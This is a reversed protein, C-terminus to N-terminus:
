HKGKKGKGPGHHKPRPKPEPKPEPPSGWKSIRITTGVTVTGTPTLAAVTGAPHGGPNDVTVLRAHLGLALLAARVTDAPKGVYAARDVAVTQKPSVSPSTPGSGPTSTDKTGDGDPSLAAVVVIVVFLAALVGALVVPWLERRVRLGRLRQAPGPAMPATPAAPVPGTMVLTEEPRLAALAAAFAAADPYRDDPRKALARQVVEALPTPVSEPLDPVPERVHALALAVPSDAHFPRRGTLCEFLVVGLAYVDSASTAVHGEAQEPSLYSPTGIIQGTQTLAAGDAARAIGFDTIKVAGDATVLMNSPKVDRHIIGAAHAAALADAAQRVLPAAEDPTLAGDRRVVASLTNGPVYEMVLWTDDGDDVLDYVAVVHPHNLRAALRAEREARQLDPSAAGPMLGIRKLAVDRGLVTDRGLWVAGMGGRGIERVIDYRGAVQSRDGAIM